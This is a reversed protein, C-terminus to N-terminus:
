AKEMLRREARTADWGTIAPWTTPDVTEEVILTIARNAHTRGILIRPEDPQRRASAGRRNRIIRHRNWITQETEAISIGRAGLKGLAARTALLQNVIDAM